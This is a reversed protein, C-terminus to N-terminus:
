IKGPHITCNRVLESFLDSPLSSGRFPRSFERAAYRWLYADDGKIKAVRPSHEGIFFGLNLESFSYIRDFKIGGVDPQEIRYMCTSEPDIDAFERELPSTLAVYTGLTVAPFAGGLVTFAITWQEHLILSMALYNLLGIGASIDAWQNGYRGGTGPFADILGFVACVLMLLLFFINLGFLRFQGSSLILVFAFLNILYGANRATSAAQAAWTKDDVCFFIYIILSAAVAMALWVVTRLLFIKSVM